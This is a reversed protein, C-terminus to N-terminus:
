TTSIGFASFSTVGNRFVCSGAAAAPTGAWLTPPPLYIVHDAPNCRVSAKAFARHDIWRRRFTRGGVCPLIVGGAGLLRQAPGDGHLRFLLQPALWSM